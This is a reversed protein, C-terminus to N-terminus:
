RRFFGNIEDISDTVCLDNQSRVKGRYFTFESDYTASDHIIGNVIFMKNYEELLKLLYRANSNITSDPNEKYAFREYIPTGVRSNMDGIVFVHRHSFQSLILEFNHFYSDSYYRSNYPVIYLAAIVIPTNCIEFIVCDTLSDLIVNLKLNSLINKFVAVGGRAKAEPAKSRGVIYFGERCKTRINFHTESLIVIDSNTLINKM